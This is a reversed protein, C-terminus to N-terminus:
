WRAPPPGREPDFVPHDARVRQQSDTERAAAKRLQTLDSEPLAARRWVDCLARPMIWGVWVVAGALGFLGAFLVLWALVAFLVLTSFIRGFPGFTLVSVELRSGTESM